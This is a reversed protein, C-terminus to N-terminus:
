HGSSSDDSRIEHSANKIMTLQAAISLAIEEPTIANIAIGAPCNIRDILEDSFGKARLRKHTMLAKRKSGVLALYKYSRTIVAEIIQQDLDHDHTVVVVYTDDCFPMDDLSFVSADKFQAHTSLFAHHQLLEAREDVVNVSFGLDVALPCLAQGIHGAGFCILTPKKVLPEIFVSMEGGCCMGLENRLSTTILSARKNRIALVAHKRIHHEIAGGGISGMVTGQPENNDIVIMKACLKRPTSGRAEVVTCVAAKLGRKEIEAIHAFFSM